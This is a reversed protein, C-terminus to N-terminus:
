RSKEESWEGVELGVLEEPDGVIAKHRVLNRLKSKKGELVIKLTHGKREIEIPIGTKIVQDVVRFLRQRLATLTLREM